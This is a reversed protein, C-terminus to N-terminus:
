LDSLISDTVRQYGDVRVYGDDELPIGLAKAADPAVAGCTNFGDADFFGISGRQIRQGSEDVIVVTPRGSYQILRLFLERKPKQAEEWVKM